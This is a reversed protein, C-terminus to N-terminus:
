KKPRPHPSAHCEFCSLEGSDIKPKFEPDTHQEIKLYSDGQAHCHLCTKAPFPEHMKIAPPVGTVHQHMVHNLGSIKAKINGSLGYGAHCTFCAHENIWRNKFHKAALTTSNPDHMDSTWPDMTHCEYCSDKTQQFGVVNAFLMTVSPLLFLGVLLTWRAASTALWTRPRTLTFVLLGAAALGFIVGAGSMWRLINHADGSFVDGGEPM